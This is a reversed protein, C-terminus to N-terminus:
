RSTPLLEFDATVTLTALHSRSSVLPQELKLVTEIFPDMRDRGRAARDAHTQQFTRDVFVSADREDLFLAYTGEVIVKKSHVSVPAPRRPPHVRQAGDQIANIDSRLQEFNVEGCGVWNLDKLRAAHNAHPELRFYDDQHLLTASAQAAVEEALTTKGAGSEGAIVLLSWAPLRDLCATALSEPTM